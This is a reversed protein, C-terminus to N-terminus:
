GALTGRVLIPIPDNFQEPPRLHRGASRRHVRGAAPSPGPQACRRRAQPASWPCIGGGAPRFRHLRWDGDDSRGGYRASKRAALDFDALPSATVLEAHQRGGGCEPRGGLVCQDRQQGEFPSRTESGARPRLVRHGCPPLSCRRRPPLGASSRGVGHWDLRHGNSRLFIPGACRESADEVGTAPSIVSDSSMDDVRM